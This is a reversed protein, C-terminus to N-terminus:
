RTKPANGSRPAPRALDPIEYVKKPQADDRPGLYTRLKGDGPEWPETMLIKPRYEPCPTVTAIRPEYGERGPPRTQLDVNKRIARVLSPSSAIDRWAAMKDPQIRVGAANLGARPDPLPQLLAACGGEAACGPTAKEAESAAQPAPKDDGGTLLAWSFLGILILTRM